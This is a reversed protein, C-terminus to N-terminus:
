PAITASLARAIGGLDNRAKGVTLGSKTFLASVAHEQGAGLEVILRGRPALLRRADAAIARYGDLGDNGGDLAIAPDYDRVEPALTAIDGHAVYPPNSVILDFPGQAGAAIDCAVFTCRSALRHREANGRAV